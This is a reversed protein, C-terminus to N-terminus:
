WFIETWEMDGVGNDHLVTSNEATWIDLPFFSSTQGPAVDASNDPPLSPLHLDPPSHMSNPVTTEHLSVPGANQISRIPEGDCISKCKQIAAIVPGYRKARELESVAQRLELSIWFVPKSNRDGEVLVCPNGKRKHRKKAFRKGFRKGCIKCQYPNLHRLADEKLEAVNKFIGNDREKMFPCETGMFQCIITKKERPKSPKRRRNLVTEM